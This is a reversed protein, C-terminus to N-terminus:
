ARTPRTQGRPLVWRHDRRVGPDDPDTVRELEVFRAQLSEADLDVIVYGYASSNAYAYHPGTQLLNGDFLPVIEEIGATMLLPEVQAAIV